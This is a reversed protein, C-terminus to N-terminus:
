IIIWNFFLVIVPLTVISFLTSQCVALVALEPEVENKQAFVVVNSGVPAAAAITIAGLIKVDINFFKFISVTIVPILLLRLFSVLYVIKVIFLSKLRVRALYIGILLMALPANLAAFGTIPTKVLSPLDINICYLLLGILLSIVVPSKLMNLIKISKRDGSIIFQGYTYQLINLLAIMGTIYIVAIDGFLATVLPIGMFAANSFSSSFNCVRRKNRFVIFSILIAILLSLAGLGFSYLLSMTTEKTREIFFAKIVVTPIVLYVLINGIAKAGNENLLKGKYLVFGVLIYIFMIATQTLVILSIDM